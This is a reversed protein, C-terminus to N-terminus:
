LRGAVGLLHRRFWAIAPDREGLETWVVEIRVPDVVLPLPRWGLPLWEGFRTVIRESTLVILDTECVLLLGTVAHPTIIECDVVGGARAIARETPGYDRGHFSVGLRPFGTLRELTLEGDLVPHGRRAVVVIRDDFLPARRIWSPLNDFQGIAMDLESSRLLDPVNARESWSIDLRANPADIVLSKHLEPLLVTATYDSAFIRANFRSTNPEFPEPDALLRRLNDLITRLAPRLEHARVTLQMQRGDRELLPDGLLHRLRSLTNSVAPQSLGVREGARTVNREELLAELVVLLNLDIGSLNVPRMAGPLRIPREILPESM